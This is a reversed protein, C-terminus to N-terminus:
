RYTHLLDYKTATEYDNGGYNQKNINQQLVNQTTSLASNPCMWICNSKMLQMFNCLSPKSITM